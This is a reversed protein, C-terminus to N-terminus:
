SQVGKLISNLARLGRSVHARANTESCDLGAAVDPYPLQRVVRADIAQRQPAPLQDVASRLQEAVEEADLRALVADLDDDHPAPFTMGLRQRAAVEVRGRRYHQRLLNRAIGYLWATAARADTGSFQRRSRWAEAFTEALLDNATAVDRVQGALWSRMSDAHRAFLTEFAAPDRLSARLLQHEAASEYEIEM